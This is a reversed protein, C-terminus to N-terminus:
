HVNPIMEPFYEFGFDDIHQATLPRASVTQWILKKLSRWNALSHLMISESHGITYAAARFPMPQLPKGLQECVKKMKLHQWLDVFYKDDPTEMSKPLDKETLWVINSTASWCYFDNRLYISRMGEQYVFGKPFYWGNSGYNNKVFSVLEQHIFDDADMRMVYGEGFGKCALMGRKVKLKIDLYVEGTNKPIPFSDTVIEIRSDQSYNEPPENCVLIIKFDPCTQRIISNLTRSCLRSVLSWDKSVKPSKLPVIFTLIPSQM